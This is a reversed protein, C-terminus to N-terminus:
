GVKIGTMGSLSLSQAARVDGHHNLVCGSNHIQYKLPAELTMLFFKRGLCWFLFLSAVCVHVFCLRVFNVVAYWEYYHPRGRIMKQLGQSRDTSTYGQSFLIHARESSLLLSKQWTLPDSSGTGTGTSAFMFFFDIKKLLMKFTIGFELKFHFYYKVPTFFCCHVIELCWKVIIKHKVYDALVCCGHLDVM